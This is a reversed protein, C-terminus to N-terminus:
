FDLNSSRQLLFWQAHSQTHSTALSPMGKKSTSLKPAEATVHKPCGTASCLGEGAPAIIFPHDQQNLGSSKGPATSRFCLKWVCGGALCPRIVPGARVPAEETGVSVPPPSRKFLFFSDILSSTDSDYLRKLELIDHVFGDNHEKFIM